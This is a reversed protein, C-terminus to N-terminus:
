LRTDARLVFADVPESLGQIALTRQPAGAVLEDDVGAAVLLEGPAASSMMRAGVEITDGLATFDVLEADVNGVYAPGGNVAVGLSLWSGPQSAYGVACLLDRGAEVALQRYRDGSIGQVFFAMVEGGILKDIVAGHRLLTRVAIGYFASVLRGYDSALVQQGLTTPGRIEASLVAIDVQAGGLPLAECCRTCLFPNRRSRSSGALALVQGGVGGFPRNCVKCRPSSPLYRFRHRARVLKGHGETLVSRWHEEAQADQPNEPIAASVENM